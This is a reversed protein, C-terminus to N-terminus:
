FLLMTSGEDEKIELVKTPGDPRIRLAVKIKFVDKKEDVKGM